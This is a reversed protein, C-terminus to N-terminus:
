FFFIILVGYFFFSSFFLLLCKNALFGSLVVYLIAIILFPFMIDM